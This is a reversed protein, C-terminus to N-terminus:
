TYKMIQTRVPQLTDALRGTAKPSNIWLLSQLVLSKFLEFKKWSLAFSYSLMAWCFRIQLIV